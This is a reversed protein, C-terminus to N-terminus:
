GVLTANGVIPTHETDTSLAAASSAMTSLALATLTGILLTRRTRLM